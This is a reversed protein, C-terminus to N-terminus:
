NGQILDLQTDSRIGAQVNIARGRSVYKELFEANQYAGPLVSEWALATYLGPAVGRIIFHGKDDTTATKYLAPNTRRDLAPVLVVIANAAEKKQATQVTGEVTEGALNIEIRIPVEANSKDINFGDDFVNTGGQQISAVYVGPPTVVNMRYRGESLNAIQFRGKEDVAVAGIANAVQPPLTNLTQLQIRLTEPHVTAAGPGTFITEGRLTVGPSVSVNVDTLDKDRVEVHMHGTWVRRNQGDLALAYLEYRGPDVNTLVFQGDPKTNTAVLNTWMTLPPNDLPTLELPMLLLATASHNVIGTVPDPTLNPLPNYAMGSIKYSGWPKVQAGLNVTVEGGEPITVPRAQNPDIVGPFFVRAWSDQVNAIPGPARPGVGVYYEGPAFNPWRYEGRDDANMAGTLQWVYRGNAYAPRATVVAYNEAPQGDPDSVLGRLVGGQVMGVDVQATKNSEVAITKTVNPAYTGLPTMPGFFGQRQARFSYSGPPLNRFAFKGDSDTLATIQQIGMAKNVLDEILQNNINVGQPIQAIVAGNVMIGTGNPNAVLRIDTPVQPGPQSSQGSLPQTGAPSPPPTLVIQVGSIPEATSSRVVRGEIAGPASMPPDQPIGFVLLLTALTAKLM